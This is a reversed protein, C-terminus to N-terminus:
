AGRKNSPEQSGLGYYKVRVVKDLMIECASSKKEPQGQHAPLGADWPIWRQIGEGTGLDSTARIGGRDGKVGRVGM